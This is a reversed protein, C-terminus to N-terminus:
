SLALKKERQNIAAQNWDSKKLVAEVVRLGEAKKYIKKKERFSRNGARSNLSPPLLLLNGIRYVQKERHAGVMLKGKWPGGPVPHRPFIHEVTEAASRAAWIKERLEQNVEAGEQAALYEEYRWLIYRSEEEFGEYERRGLLEQVADKIPYESGLTYLKDMIEKYSITAGEQVIWAALRIYDGVKVRADNWFLGFIRFSVREWQELATRREEDGLAETLMLAVGLVRVQLIRTVAALSPNMHIGVLKETVSQLRKTM